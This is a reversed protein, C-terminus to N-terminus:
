SHKSFRIISGNQEFPILHNRKRNLVTQKSVLWIVALEHSTYLIEDDPPNKQILNPPLNDIFSKLVQDACETALQKVKEEILIILNM